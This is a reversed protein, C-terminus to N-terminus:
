EYNLNKTSFTSKLDVLKELNTGNEEVKIKASMTMEIQVVDNLAGQNAGNNSPNDRSTGDRLLYRVQFNQINYALPQTQIQQSALAGTNNGYTTRVLVGESTVHYSVWFIKIASVGGTTYNMCDTAGVMMDDCNVLKSKVNTTGTYPANVGLIDNAPNSSFELTSTGVRATALGIATRVGDNSIMYLDFPTASDNANIAAGNETTLVVGGTGLASANTIRIANGNNFNVDRYAFAVVDTRVGPNLDNTNIDNGAIVPTLSDQITDADSPLSMRVNTLNDPMNGAKKYRLGANVADRGVTNLSVRLNTMVETQSGTLDKQINAVRLLGYISATFILFVAISIMLEIFTFGAERTKKRAASNTKSPM